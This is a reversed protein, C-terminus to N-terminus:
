CARIRAKETKTGMGSDRVPLFEDVGEAEFVSGFQKHDLPM